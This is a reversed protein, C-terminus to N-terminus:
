RVFTHPKIMSASATATLARWAQGSCRLVPGDPDVSDRIFVGAAVPAVEVCAGNYTSFSSKRWLVGDQTDADIPM